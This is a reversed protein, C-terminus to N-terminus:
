DIKTVIGKSSESAMLITVYNEVNTDVIECKNLLHKFGVNVRKGTLALTSPDFGVAVFKVEDGYVTGSEATHKPYFIADIICMMEGKSSKYITGISVFNKFYEKGSVSDRGVEAGDVSTGVKLGEIAMAVMTLKKM